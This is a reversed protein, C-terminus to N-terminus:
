ENKFLVITGAIYDHFGQKRKTLQIMFFGAFFFVLSIPKLCNRLIIKMPLADSSISAIKLKIWRKGPTGKMPSLEFATNYVTYIFGIIYLDFDTRPFITTLYFLALIPVLDINHALLRQSFSAYRMQNKSKGL